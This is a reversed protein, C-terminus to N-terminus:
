ASYTTTRDSRFLHAPPHGLSPSVHTDLTLFRGFGGFIAERASSRGRFTAHGPADSRAFCTHGPCFFRGRSSILAHVQICPDRPDPEIRCRIDLKASPM